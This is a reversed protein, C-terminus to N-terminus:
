ADVLDKHTPLWNLVDQVHADWYNWDHVGPHTEYVIKVGLSEAKRFFSDNTPLIFDERGCCMYMDPLRTKKACHAALLAGLDDKDTITISEGFAAKRYNLPMKTIHEETGKHLERMDLAGSISAACGFTEPYEFAIRFTGYGGMSLGAIFTDERRPSLPFMKRMLQPLEQGVYALYNEGHVMDQYCSNEASPMVM